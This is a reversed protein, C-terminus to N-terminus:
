RLTSVDITVGNIVVQSVAPEGENYDADEYIQHVERIFDEFHDAEVDFTKTFKAVFRMQKM